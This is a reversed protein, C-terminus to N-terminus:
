YCDTSTTWSSRQRRWARDSCGAGISPGVLRKVLSVTYSGLGVREVTFIGLTVNALVFEWTFPASGLSQLAAAAVNDRIFPIVVTDGLVVAPQEGWVLLRQIGREALPREFLLPINLASCRDPKQFVELITTAMSEIDLAQFRSSAVAVLDVDSAGVTPLVPRPTMRQFRQVGRGKVPEATSLPDPGLPFPFWRWQPGGVAARRTICYVCATAFIWSFPSVRTNVGLSGLRTRRYSDEVWPFRTEPSLVPAPGTRDAVYQEYTLRGLTSREDGLASTLAEDVNQGLRTRQYVANGLRPPFANESDTAERSEESYYQLILSIVDATPCERMSVGVDAGLHTIFVEAAVMRGACEMFDTDDEFLLAAYADGWSAVDVAVDQLTLYMGSLLVRRANGLPFPGIADRFSYLENLAPFNNFAAIIDRFTWSLPTIARPVQVGRIALALEGYLDDEVVGSLPLSIEYGYLVICIIPIMLRAKLGGLAQRWLSVDVFYLEKRGLSHVAHLVTVTHETVSGGIGVFSLLLDEDNLYGRSSKDQSSPRNYLWARWGPIGPPTASAFLAQRFERYQAYRERGSTALIPWPCGTLVGPGFRTEELIGHDNFYRGLQAWSKWALSAIGSRFPSFAPQQGVTGHVAVHKLLFWALEM